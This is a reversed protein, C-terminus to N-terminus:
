TPPARTPQDTPEIPPQDTPQAPPQDTPQDTPQAPPETPPQDTPESPPQLRYRSNNTDWQATFGQQHIKVNHCDVCVTVLNEYDTPGGHQWHDIHHHQCREPAIGCGVCGKDRLALAARQLDTATRRSRGMRLDGTAAEFIAPLVEADVAIQAIEGIPIPTGDGLRGGTLQHNVTDYDAVVILSAGAPRKADPDCILETVADAMRQAPTRRAAPDENRFLRREAAAIVTGLRAGMVPDVCLSLVTMADSARTFLRAARADRQRELVSEGDDRNTEAVHRAVTRRFEDYGEREAREALFRDDIPADGAARAILQAHGVPVTGATLGQRTADLEALRVADRVEGRARRGSVAMADAAAHAAAGDGSRRAIESLADAKMAALGSEARAIEGLRAQLGQGCLGAVDVADVRVGGCLSMGASGGNAAGSGGDSDSNMLVVTHPPHSVTTPTVAADTVADSPAIPSGSDDGGSNMLVVTHPPHSVTTPTVAADTVADSPAIPSGSDDGGSNMLVITHSPHSVTTPTVAADTVADSPAIPSGSDDGGSNMLVITHSPHSVTTPTVAADTVADSPAIPSGSDDGGSRMLVVTHSPHSVTTPTAAADAAAASLAIPTGSDGDSNM